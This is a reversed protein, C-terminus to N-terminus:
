RAAAWRSPWAPCPRPTASGRATISTTPASSRACSSRSSTTRRTPAARRPSAPSPTRRRARGQHAWAARRRPRAGRGLLGARARRRRPHAAAHPARPPQHVSYGYRGKVCLNGHNPAKAVDATVRVVRATSWTCSCRVAAAASPASRHRRRDRGLHARRAQEPHRLARGHPLVLRLQRVARVRDRADLPRVLDLHVVPLRARRLRARPVAAGARLHRRLPRLPHVQRPRLRRLPQRRPGPVRAGRRRLEGRRRRLPLGAGAPPVARLPRLRHLRQPPRLAAARPAGQADRHPRREGDHVVMAEAVPTACSVLPARAGEVEVLCLRCAAFPELRDDQCLSPIDIGAARAAQLISTGSAASVTRGDITLEVIDVADVIEM